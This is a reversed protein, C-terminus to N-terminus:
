SLTPLEGTMSPALTNVLERHIGLPPYLYMDMLWIRQRSPLRGLLAEAERKADPFRKGWGAFDRALVELSVVATAIQLLAENARKARRTKSASKFIQALERNCEVVDRADSQWLLDPLCGFGNMAHYSEILRRCKRALESPVFAFTSTAAALIETQRKGDRGTAISTEDTLAM